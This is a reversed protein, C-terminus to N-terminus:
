EVEVLNNNVAYLAGITGADLDSQYHVGNVIRTDSIKDALTEFEDTLEPHLRSLITAFTWADMSHGSPYSSTRPDVVLREIQKGYEPALQYPRPRNYRTKLYNIFGDIQNGINWFWDYDYKKGTLETTRNAWMEYHEGINDMLLSYNREDETSEAMRSVIYNLENMTKTSSNRPAPPLINPSGNQFYRGLATSTDNSQREVTDIHRQAPTGYVMVDINNLREFNMM